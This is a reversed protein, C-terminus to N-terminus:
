PTYACFKFGGGLCQMGPLPCAGAVCGLVCGNKRGCSLPHGMFHSPCDSNAQCRNTCMGVSGRGAVLAFQSSACGSGFPNAFLAEADLRGYVNVDASQVLDGGQYAFPVLRCRRVGRRSEICLRKGKCDGDSRCRRGAAAMGTVAALAVLVLVTRHM